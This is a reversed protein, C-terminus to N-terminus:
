VKPVLSLPIYWNLFTNIFSNAFSQITDEGLQVASGFLNFWQQALDSSDDNQGNNGDNNGGNNGDNGGNNGGGFGFGGGGGVGGGFGGGNQCIGPVVLIIAIVLVFVLSGNAVM